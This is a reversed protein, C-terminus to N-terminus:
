FWIFITKINKIIPLCNPLKIVIKVLNYFINLIIVFFEIEEFIFQFLFSLNLKSKYIYKSLIFYHVLFEKCLKSILKGAGINSSKIKWINISYNM